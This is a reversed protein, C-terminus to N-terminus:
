SSLWMEISSSVAIARDRPRRRGSRPAVAPVHLRDVPEGVVPVYSSSTAPARRRAEVRGPRVGVPRREDRQARDDAPRRRVLLVGALGVARREAGVLDRRGLLDEAEVRVLGELDVSSTRACARSTTSGRGPRARRTASAREVGPGRGVRVRCPAARGAACGCAAPRSSRPAAPTGPRRSPCPSGCPTRCPGRARERRHQGLQPAARGVQGLGVVGRDFPSGDNRGSPGGSWPREGAARVAPHQVEADALVRM